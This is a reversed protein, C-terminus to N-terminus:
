INESIIYFIWLEVGCHEWKLYVANKDSVVYKNAVFIIKRVIIDEEYV